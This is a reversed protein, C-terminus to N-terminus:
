FRPAPIFPGGVPPGSNRPMIEVPPDPPPVRKGKLHLPYFHTEVVNRLRIYRAKSTEGTEDRIISFFRCNNQQSWQFLRSTARQFESEHIVKGRSFDGVHAWADDKSRHPSANSVVLGPDQITVDFMYETKGDETTWCSPYTTGKGSSRMLNDRQQRVRDREHELSALKDKFIKQEGLASTIQDVDIDPGLRELITVGKRLVAPPDNPNIRAAGKVITDVDRLKKVADSGLSNLTSLQSRMESNEQQVEASRREIQDLRGLQELLKHVDSIALEGTAKLHRLLPEFREATQKYQVYEGIEKNAAALRASLALLILFLLLMLVEALTLGLVLGRRHEREDIVSQRMIGESLDGFHGIGVNTGDRHFPETL